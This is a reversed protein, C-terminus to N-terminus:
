SRHTPSRFPKLQLPMHKVDQIPLPCLVKEDGSMPIKVCIQLYKIIALLHAHQNENFVYSYIETKSHMIDVTVIRKQCMIPCILKFLSFVHRFAVRFAILVFNTSFVPLLFM